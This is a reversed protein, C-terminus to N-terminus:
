PSDSPRYEKASRGYLEAVDLEETINQLEGTHVWRQFKGVLRGIVGGREILDLAEICALEEEDYRVSLEEISTTM